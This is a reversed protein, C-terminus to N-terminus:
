SSEVAIEKNDNADIVNGLKRLLSGLKDYHRSISCNLM